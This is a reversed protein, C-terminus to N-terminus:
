RNYRYLFQKCYTVIEGNIQPCKFTLPNSPRISQPLTMIIESRKSKNANTINGSLYVINKVVSYSSQQSQDINKWNNTLSLVNGQDVTYAINSFSVYDLIPQKQYKKFIVKGTTDITIALNVHREGTTDIYFNNVIFWLNKKPRLSTPLVSVLHPDVGKKATTEIYQDYTATGTFSVATNQLLYSVPVFAKSSSLYSQM